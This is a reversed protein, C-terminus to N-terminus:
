RAIGLASTAPSTVSVTATRADGNVNYVALGTRSGGLQALIEARAENYALSTINDPQMTTVRNRSRTGIRMLGGTSSVFALQTSTVILGTPRLQVATTGRTTLELPASIARTTATLFQIAAASPPGSTVKGAGMSVICFVANAPDATVFWPVASTAVIAEVDMTRSDIIAVSNTDPLTVCLQNGNADINMPRSPMSITRAVSGVTLDIVKVARESPITAFATTANAFAISSASATGLDITDVARLTDADFIVIWPRQSHLLYVRERFRKLQHLASDAADSWVTATASQDPVDTVVLSGQANTMLLRWGDDFSDIFPEEPTCAVLTAAVLIILALPRTNM